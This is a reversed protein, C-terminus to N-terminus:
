APHFDRDRAQPIISKMVQSITLPHRPFLTAHWHDPLFVWATLLFGHKARSSRLSRALRSFDADNLEARRPLLKVTVFLFRDAVFPRRLRSM